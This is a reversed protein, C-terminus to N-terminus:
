ILKKLLDATVRPLNRRVLTEEITHIPVSSCDQLDRLEQNEPQYPTLAGAVDVIRESGDKLQILIPALVDGFGPVKITANRTFNLNEINQRQLDEFLLDLSRRVRHPDWEPAIGDLLHKLLVAAVM